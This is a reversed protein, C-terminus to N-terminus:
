WAQWVSTACAKLGALCFYRLGEPRGPLLLAPRWAQRPTAYAKLRAVSDRGRALM